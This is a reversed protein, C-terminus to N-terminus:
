PGVSPVLTGKPRGTTGSTHLVLAVDREEPKGSGRLQGGKGPRGSWFKLKVDSGDFHVEAIQVRLDKAAQVAPHSSDAGHPVLVLKSKTDDLYFSVESKNYAPNLPAAM